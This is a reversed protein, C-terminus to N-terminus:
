KLLDRLYDDLLETNNLLSEKWGKALVSTNGNEFLIVDKSRVAGIHNGHRELTWVYRNDGTSKEASLHVGLDSEPFVLIPSLGLETKGYMVHMRVGKANFSYTSMEITSLEVSNSCGFCTLLVLALFARPKNKM